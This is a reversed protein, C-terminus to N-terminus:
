FVFVAVDSPARSQAPGLTENQSPQLPELPQSQGQLKGGCSTPFFISLSTCAVCYFAVRRICALHFAIPREYSVLCPIRRRWAVALQTSPSLYRPTAPTPDPRFSGRELMQRAITPNRERKKRKEIFVCLRCSPAVSVAPFSSRRRRRPMSQDHGDLLLLGNGATVPPALVPHTLQTHTYGKRVACSNSLAYRCAFFSKIM